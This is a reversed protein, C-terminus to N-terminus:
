QRGSKPRDSGQRGTTRGGKGYGGGGGGFDTLSLTTVVASDTTLLRDGWDHGYWEGEGEEVSM